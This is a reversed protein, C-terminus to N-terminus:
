ELLKVGGRSLLLGDMRSDEIHRVALVRAFMEIALITSGGKRTARSASAFPSRFPQGRGAIQPASYEM